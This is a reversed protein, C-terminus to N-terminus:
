QNENREIQNFHSILSGILARDVEIFGELIKAMGSYFLLHSYLQIDRSFAKIWTSLHENLFDEQDKLINIISSSDKDLDLTQESLRNMFDLLSGIHDDPERLRNKVVYNYKLYAKRVQLTSEQFLLRDESLYASEWPPAPLSGPGVFLRTYAWHLKEFAQDEKYDKNFYTTLFDVGDKILTNEEIFPLELLNIDDRIVRILEKNPEVYFVHKLLNYMLQRAELTFNVDSLQGSM